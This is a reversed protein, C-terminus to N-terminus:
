LIKKTRKSFFLSFVLKSFHGLSIWFEGKDDQVELKKRLEVSWEESGDGCWSKTGFPDRLKLLRHNEIEIVEHVSYEHNKYLNKQDYEEESITTCATIAAMLHKLEFANLM